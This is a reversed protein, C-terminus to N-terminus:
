QDVARVVGEAIIILSPAGQVRGAVGARQEAAGVRQEAAGPSQGAAIQDALESLEVLEGVVAVPAVGNQISARKGRVIGSPGSVSQETSLTVEKQFKKGGVDFELPLRLAVTGAQLNVDAGGPRALRVTVPRGKATKGNLVWNTTVQKGRALEAVSMRFNIASNQFEEILESKGDPLKRIGQASIRGEFSREATVAEFVRWGLVSVLVLVLGLTRLLIRSISPM